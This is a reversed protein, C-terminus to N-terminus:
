VLYCNYSRSALALLVGYGSYPNVGDVYFQAYAADAGYQAVLAQFYKTETLDSLTPAGPAPPPIDHFRHENAVMTRRRLRNVHMAFDQVFVRADLVDGLRSCSRMKCKGRVTKPGLLDLFGCGSCSRHVRADIAAQAFALPYSM